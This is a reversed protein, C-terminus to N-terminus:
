GPEQAPLHEDCYDRGDAGVRFELEPNSSDTRQCVACQYLAAGKAAIASANFKRRRGAAQAERGKGRLAPIGAWILYNGFALVLVGWWALSSFGNWVLPIAALMALFRVQVPLVFFLRFEVRPFLTAFAFFASLYFFLGIMGATAPVILPAAVAGIVGVYCFLSTRFTGWAGELSDSIMFTIMVVFFKFVVGLPTAMGMGSGAFLGTLLLWVEGDWVRSWDLLLSHGLGPRLVTLLYVMADLIAFYRLFGPFALWGCRRELHNSFSM